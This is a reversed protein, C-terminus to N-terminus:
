ALLSPTAEMRSVISMKRSITVLGSPKAKVWLVTSDQTEEGQKGCGRQIPSPLLIQPTACGQSALAEEHVKGHAPSWWSSHLELGLGWSLHSQGELVAQPALGPGPVRAGDTHSHVGVAVPVCTKSTLATGKGRHLM